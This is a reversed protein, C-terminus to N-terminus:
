GVALNRSPLFCKRLEHIIEDSLRKSIVYTNQFDITRAHRHALSKQGHHVACRAFAARFPLCHRLPLPKFPRRATTRHFTGTHTCKTASGHRAVQGDIGRDVSSCPSARITAGHPIPALPVQAPTTPRPAPCGEKSAARRVSESRRRRRLHAREGHRPVTRHTARGATNRDHRTDITRRTNIGRHM